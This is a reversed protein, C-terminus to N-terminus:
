GATDTMLLLLICCSFAAAAPQSLTVYALLSCASRDTASSLTVPAYHFTVPLSLFM